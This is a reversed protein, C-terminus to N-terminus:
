SRPGRPRRAIGAQRLARDVTRMTVGLEAAIERLTAQEHHYRRALWTPDSLRQRAAEPIQRGPPRKHAFGHAAALRRLRSPSVRGHLAASMATWSWGDTVHRRRVWAVPDTAEVVASLAEGGASLAQGVDREIREITTAPCLGHQRRWYVVTSRAVGLEEAIQADSLAEDALKAQLWAVDRLRARVEVPVTSGGPARRPIAFQQLATRVRARGM